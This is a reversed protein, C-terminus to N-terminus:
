RRVGFDPAAVSWVAGLSSCALFAVVCEAVNPMYAAVRDGAVVGLSRLKVAFAIADHRLEDWGVEHSTGGESVVLLAPETSSNRLAHQAYNLRAGEFWEAGYVDRERRLVRSYPASSNVQYYDWISKWFDELHSVSWAWLVDYDHSVEPTSEFSQQELWHWYATINASQRIDDSPTWLEEGIM